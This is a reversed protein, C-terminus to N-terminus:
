KFEDLLRRELDNIQDYETASRLCGQLEFQPIEAPDRGPPLHAMKVNYFVKNLEAAVVHSEETTGGDLALVVQTHPDAKSFMQLQRDTIEKGYLAVANCGAAMASFVGECIVIPTCQMANELNWVGQKVGKPVMYRPKMGRDITRAVYFVLSEGITEPIIVRRPYRPSTGMNFLAIAQPILGRGTLYNWEDTNPQVRQFGPPWPVAQVSISWDGNYIREFEKELESPLPCAEIGEQAGSGKVKFTRYYRYCYGFSGEKGQFIVCRAHGCLPCREVRKWTM